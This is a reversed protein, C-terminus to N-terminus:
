LFENRRDAQVKTSDLSRDGCNACVLQEPMDERQGAVRFSYGCQDCAVRVHEGWFAPAMSNGTVVADRSSDGEGTCGVVIAIWAALVCRFQMGTKCKVGTRM